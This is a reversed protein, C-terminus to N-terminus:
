AKKKLEEEGYSKKICRRLWNGRLYYVIFLLSTAAWSLPYSILVTSLERRFPLMIAIWVIRLLCVGGAVMLMPPTAEGCGRIAGALIEICIYTFYFPVTIGVIQRGITLVATDSTFIQQLPGAFGYYLGGIVVSTILSLILCVRVSERIRDYKRAGFNQGAFATISIGFAGMIMWFFGDIKGHATWAAMTDTGFSNIYTQIIINSISYMNSQLGAPIGVRLVGSLMGKAFRLKSPYFRYCGNSSALSLLTLVASLAQSLITAFAAGFVGMRMGAVFLLDLVINTLCAAVLFYLPRKTDGIARLVGSGMNYLFSPVVGLLVTRLYTLAYPMVDEPTGMATLAPRALLLSLVTMGLGASIALALSTHVADGVRKHEGAGYLQAVVVTTGSSIGVFLNVIFNVLTGTAGGVAALAQKGVFQGVIMADATNYLQQFFTGFLIPFFYALLQKWIVGETLGRASTTSRAM